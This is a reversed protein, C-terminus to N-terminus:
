IATKLAKARLALGLLWWTAMLFPITIGAAVTWDIRAGTLWRVAATVVLAGAVAAVGRLHWGLDLLILAMGFAVAIWARPEMIYSSLSSLGLLALAAGFVGPVILGPRLLEAYGIAIGVVLATYSAAASSFLPMTRMIDLAVREFSTSFALTLM